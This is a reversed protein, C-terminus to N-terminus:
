KKVVMEWADGIKMNPNKITVTFTSDHRTVFMLKEGGMEISEPEDNLGVIIIREIRTNFPAADFQNEPKATLKGDKYAFHSRIYKGSQYEFTSGDDLYM